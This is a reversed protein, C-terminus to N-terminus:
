LLLRQPPSLMNTTPLLLDIYYRERQFLVRTDEIPELLRFTFGNWGGSSRVYKYLKRKPYDDYEKHHWNIRNEFDLTSGIYICKMNATEYIGYICSVPNMYVKSLYLYTMLMENYVKNHIVALGYKSTIVALEKEM